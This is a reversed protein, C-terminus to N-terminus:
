KGLSGNICLFRRVNAIYDPEPAIGTPLQRKPREIFVRLDRQRQGATYLPCNLCNKLWMIRQPLAERNEKKKCIHKLQKLQWIGCQWLVSSCQLCEKAIMSM